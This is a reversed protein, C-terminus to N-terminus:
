LEGKQYATGYNTIQTPNRMLARSVTDRKRHFRRGIESTSCEELAWFALM